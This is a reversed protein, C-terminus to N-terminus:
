ARAPSTTSEARQLWRGAPTEATTRDLLPLMAVLMAFGNFWLVPLAICSALPVTWRRDTRAGWFVIAVAVPLRFWVPIPVIFTWDPASAAATLTDVWEFWLSPNLAFSGAGIVATVGLAIALSRWERRFAFWLLGVGPTIKTLLVFSWTWPWRFGLVIAAGLVLHINGVTLDVFVPLLLLALATFLGAQWVLTATLVVTWAAIFVQWPLLHIPATLQAFAPSYFYAQATGPATAGYPSAPDATWYTYADVGIDLLGLLHAVALVLCGVIAGDRMARLTSRRLRPLRASRALSEIRATVRADYARWV